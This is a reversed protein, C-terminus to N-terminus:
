DTFQCDSPDRVNVGNSSSSVSFIDPPHHLTSLNKFPFPPLRLRREVDADGLYLGHDDPNLTSTPATDAPPQWVAQSSPHRLGQLRPVQLPLIGTAAKLRQRHLLRVDGRSDTPLRLPQRRPDRQLHIYHLVPPHSVRLNMSLTISITPICHVRNLTGSETGSAMGPTTIRPNEPRRPQHFGSIHKTTMTVWNNITPTGWSTGEGRDKGGRLKFTKM